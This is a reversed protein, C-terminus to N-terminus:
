QRCVEDESYLPTIDIDFSLAKYLTHAAGRIVEMLTDPKINTPSLLKVHVHGSRLTVSVAGSADPGAFVLVPGALVGKKLTSGIFGSKQLTIIDDISAMLISKLTYKGM